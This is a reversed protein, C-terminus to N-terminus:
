ILESLLRILPSSKADLGKDCGESVEPMLPVKGLFKIGTEACFREVNGSGFLEVKNGAADEFYSMNELVGIVPIEVKNFMSAAKKVDMLAVEQPTSVLIAGDIKYNQAISLQIDGTGPPLDMVLVDLEGWEAALMLQHLAKTVMPGRWVVPTNEGMMMGMSMVKVGNSEQPVMKNNRVEPEGSISMMRAISPGLIDADVLGVKKGQAALSLAYHAAITSKGVGGKGSAVAIIKKIGEINKPSPPKVWARIDNTNKTSM